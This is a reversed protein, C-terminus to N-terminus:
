IKQQAHGWICQFERRIAFTLFLELGYNMPESRPRRYAKTWLEDIEEEAKVVFHTRKEMAGKALISLFHSWTSCAIRAKAPFTEFCTSSVPSPHLCASRVRCDSELVVSM